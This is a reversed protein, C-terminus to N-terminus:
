RASPEEPVFILALWPKENCQTIKCRTGSPLLLSRDPDHCQPRKRLAPRIVPCGGEEPSCLTSSKTTRLQKLVRVFLSSLIHVFTLADAGAMRPSPVHTGHHRSEISASSQDVLSQATNQQM